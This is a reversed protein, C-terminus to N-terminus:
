LQDNHECLTSKKKGGKEESSVTPECNELDEFLINNYSLSRSTQVQATLTAKSHEHSLGSNVLQSKFPFFADSGTSPLEDRCRFASIM